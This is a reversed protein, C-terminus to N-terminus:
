QAIKSFLIVASIKIMLVRKPCHLLKMQNKWQAENLIVWRGQCSKKLIVKPKYNEKVIIPLIVIFM